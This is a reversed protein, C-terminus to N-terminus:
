LKSFVSAVRGSMDILTSKERVWGELGKKGNEVGIGSMKWGGVSMEAPSEGWTNIWTIGAELQAIIKHAANLDKTFVGAALGLPTDNARAIAEEITSYTLICMVPGFIEERTIKMGDHCDTFVTPQVWFGNECGKPMNSPKQFGGCLLRAKDGHIGHWIYDVVKKHHVQSVLPGFNTIPDFVDGMRVFDMKELLRKEFSAKMSEHVFVRTGNTCVQGTSFFNAMMACDVANDLEANDLEANALILLPSKGGLEMTIHAMRGAAAAAVKQGTSVQGTFSVKAIKPHSTLYSGVDGAGYVINFVGAPVGAEAYIEALVEAHLPAVESPKYVLCNGASICPSSSWLGVQASYNWAGIAACVGLAEKKTYVWADPRLVTTEGNLGGSAVLNAYYELVDAGTQIDVTSTESFPKGIDHTEITALEDNRSRLLEVAKLLIRSRVVPPTNSWAPFAKQASAIACDIDAQSSAYIEGLIEGNTPNITQFTKNSTSKQFAGDYYLQRASYMYPAM